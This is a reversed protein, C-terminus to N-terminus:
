NTILKHENSLTDTVRYLWLQAEKRSSFSRSSVGASTVIHEFFIANDREIESYIIAYKLKNLITDKLIRLSHYYIYSPDIQYNLRTTDILVQSLGCKDHIEYVKRRAIALDEQSIDQFCIVCITENDEDVEFTMPM